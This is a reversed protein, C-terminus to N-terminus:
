LCIIGFISLTLSFFYKFQTSHAGVEQLQTLNVKRSSYKLVREKVPAMACDTLGFVIKYLHTLKAKRHKQGLTPIHALDLLDSYHASWDQYCVRLAFKSTKKLFILM